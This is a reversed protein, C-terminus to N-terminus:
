REGSSQPDAEAQSQSRAWSGCLPPSRPRSIQCMDWQARSNSGVLLQPRGLLWHCSLCQDTGAGQGQASDPNAKRINTISGARPGLGAAGAWRQWLPVAEQEADRWGPITILSPHVSASTIMGEVAVGASHIPSGALSAWSQIGAIVLATKLVLTSVRDGAKPSHCQRAPISCISKGSCRRFPRQDCSLFPDQDTTPM